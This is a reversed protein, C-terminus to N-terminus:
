ISGSVHGILTTKYIEVKVIVDGREGALHDEDGSTRAEGRESEYLKWSWIPVAPNPAADTWAKAM